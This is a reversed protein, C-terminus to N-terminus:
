RNAQRQGGERTQGVGILLRALRIIESARDVVALMRYCRVQAVVITRQGSPRGSARVAM